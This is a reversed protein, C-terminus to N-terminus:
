AMEGSQESENRIIHDHFSRQWSFDPLGAARTLKTTTTKYAGILESLSKIKLSTSTHIGTEDQLGRASLDRGTGVLFSM